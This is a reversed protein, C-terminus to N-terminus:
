AVTLTGTMDPHIKCTIPYTGAKKPAKFTTSKGPQITKTTFSGDAATLTHPASDDNRVTVTAGPKVTLVGQYTFNTM